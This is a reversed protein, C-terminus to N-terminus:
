YRGMVKLLFGMSKPRSNLSWKGMQGWAIKGARNGRVRWHGAVPFVHEM